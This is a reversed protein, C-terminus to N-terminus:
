WNGVYAKSGVLGGRVDMCKRGYVFM